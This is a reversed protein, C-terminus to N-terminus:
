VVSKRDTMRCRYRNKSRVQNQVKCIFFSYRNINSRVKRVMAQADAKEALADELDEKDAKVTKLVEVQQM